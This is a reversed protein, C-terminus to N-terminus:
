TLSWPSKPARTLVERGTGTVLVLDEIRVGGVGPLYVGPEVSVINGPQLVDTSGQALFPDEHIFLGVGHGTSHIFQDARGANAIVSRCAADIDGAVAGPGIAVVGAAQARLVLEFMATTEEDPEGVVLSRSLDSRYGDITAGFDILVVDGPEIRRDSPRHHPLAANPGSAVITPFAPQESGAQRLLQELHMQVDIETPGELLMPQAADFVADAIEVAARIRAIEGADKVQRITEVLHNTPVLDANAFWASEYQRLKGWTVSDAELAIRRARGLAASIVERERDRTVELVANVESAALDAAAREGYRGDTVLVMRDPTVALIGAGGSFGTLYRINLLDTVLIADATGSLANRVANARDKTAMPTKRAAAITTAVSSNDM